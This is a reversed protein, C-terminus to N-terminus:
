NRKSEAATLTAGQRKFRVWEDFQNVFRVAYRVYVEDNAQEPMKM